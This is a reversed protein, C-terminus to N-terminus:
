LCTNSSLLNRELWRLDGHIHLTAYADMNDENYLQEGFYAEIKMCIADISPARTGFLASEAMELAMATDELADLPTTRGMKDYRDKLIQVALLAANWELLANQPARETM